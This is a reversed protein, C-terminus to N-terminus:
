FFTIEEQQQESDDDVYNVSKEIAEEVSFGSTIMDFVIREEEMVHSERIRQKFAAWHEADTIFEPRQINDALSFLSGSVNRMRQSLRDYFQFAEVTTDVTENVSTLKSVHKALEPDPHRDCYDQIGRQADKLTATLAGVCRALLEGLFQDGDTLSSNIQAASIKLMRVTEDLHSGDQDAPTTKFTESM